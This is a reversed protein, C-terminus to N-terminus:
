LFDKFLDFKSLDLMEETNFSTFLDTMTFFNDIIEENQIVNESITFNNNTQTQIENQNALSTNEIVSEKNELDENMQCATKPRQASYSEQGSTQPEMQMTAIKPNPLSKLKKNVFKKAKPENLNQNNLFKPDMEYVISDIQKGIILKLVIDGSRM